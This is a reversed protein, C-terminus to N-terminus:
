VPSFLFKKAKISTKINGMLIDIKNRQLNVIKFIKEAFPGSNFKYYNNLHKEFLNGAILGKDNELNKCKNIFSKIEVQNKLFGNLFYKLGRLYKLQELNKQNSFNKHFCFFYNGLLNIETNILKNNKYKQILLKPNYTLFDNGLKKRLDEKLLNIKKPDFKIIAWM